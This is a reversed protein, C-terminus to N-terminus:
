KLVEQGWFVIEINEKYLQRTKFINLKLQHSRSISLFKYYAPMIHFTFPILQSFINNRIMYLTSSQEVFDVSICFQFFNNLSLGLHQKSGGARWNMKSIEDRYYIKFILAEAHLLLNMLEFYYIICITNLFVM